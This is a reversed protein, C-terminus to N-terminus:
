VFGLEQLYDEILGRVAAPAEVTPLHAADPIEQFRSDPILENLERLLSPPTSMDEAGCLCLAPPALGRAAETLDADRIAACTGTYGEVPTRLLMNRWLATEAPQQRRFSATFWGELVGDAIVEMGEREIREIRQNWREATGIVHGTDVLVLASVLEPRRAALGLAIMGGVSLGCVVAKSIGLNELLAALDTVHDDISSAPPHADSLGHGRKDYFLLRYRDALAHATPEWVRWDTGLSNIFVLTSGASRGAFRFYLNNGNVNTARM